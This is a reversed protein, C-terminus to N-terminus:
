FQKIYILEDLVEAVISDTFSFFGSKSEVLM